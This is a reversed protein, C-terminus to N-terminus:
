PRPVALREGMIQRKVQEWPLTPAPNREDEDLRKDIIAREEESIPLTDLYGTAHIAEWLEMALNIQEDRPLSKAGQLIEENTMIVEPL